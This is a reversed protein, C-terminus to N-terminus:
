TRIAKQKQRYRLDLLTQAGFREGSTQDGPNLALDATNLLEAVDKDHYSGTFLNVTESLDLLAASGGDLPSATEVTANRERLAAAYSRMMDPLQRCIRGLKELDGRDLDNRRRRAFFLRDSTNIRAVEEAMDELRKPFEKLAKWTKGTQSAWVRELIAPRGQHPSVALCVLGTLENSCDQQQWVGNHLATIAKLRQGFERNQRLRHM